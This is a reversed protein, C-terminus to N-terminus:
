PRYRDKYLGIKHFPIDKFHTQKKIANPIRLEKKVIQVGEDATSVFNDKFLVLKEDVDDLLERYKGQCIINSRIVNGKPWGPQDTCVQALAPYRQAYLPNQFTVAHLRKYMISDPGDLFFQAWGRGRGDIHLAPTGNLIVNNEVRNDRGGGIMVTRGAHDFVNGYVTTGSALDDLYVAMVDVFGRRVPVGHLDHFYNYRITSGRQSWDRGLYFAGADGTQRCVHYIENYEMVHDNGWFFLASHPLDHILCHSVRNGVGWMFVAARYTSVWRCVDYFHCNDAYNNGPTLTKRDGGTLIIGGEGCQYIDCSQVGNDHGAESNYLTNQGIEGGLNDHWRGICVGVTGMNRITCGRVINHSGGEIIVAASRGCELTVDEITVNHTNHLHILPESLISVQAQGRQMAEPPWFYLLGTKSDVYYEGPADLEQLANLAYFRKGPSYGYVGGPLRTTIQGTTTDINEVKEYSDAWDWTWYGHLWLDTAPLWTHLKDNNFIFAEKRKGALTDSIVAWDDNPWRALTMPRNNFFLELQATQIPRGFGRSSLSGYETVGIAKLDTCLIFSRAEVPVQRLVAQDVIPQFHDICRGGTLRVPENKFARILLKCNKNQWLLTKSIPYSGARIFVTISNDKMEAAKTLAAEPSALPDHLSGTANDHGSVAVYLARSGAWSAPMSTIMALLAMVRFTRNIM